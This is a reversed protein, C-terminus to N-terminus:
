VDAFIDMPISKLLCNLRQRLQRLWISKLLSKRLQQVIGEYRGTVFYAVPTDIAQRL